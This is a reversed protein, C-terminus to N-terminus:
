INMTYSYTTGKLVSFIGTSNYSANTAINYTYVVYQKNSPVRFTSLGSEDTIGSFDAIKLNTITSYSSSFKTSPILLVGINRLPQNNNYSKIAITFTGSFDTVKVEKKKVSGTIVQVYEQVFYTVNNVKTSDAVILYTHPNLDGFDVQGNADTLREDILATNYYNDQRDYLSIKVNPLGKGGDDNLKYTLKGSTSLHVDVNTTKKCSAFVALLLILFTLKSKMFNILKNKSLHIVDM